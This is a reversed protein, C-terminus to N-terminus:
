CSGQGGPNLTRMHDTHLRCTPMSSLIKSEQQLFQDLFGFSPSIVHRRQKIDNFAEKLHLQKTKM